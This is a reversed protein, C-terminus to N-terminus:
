ERCLQNIFYEAAKNAIIHKDEKNIFKKGTSEKYWKENDKYAMAINAVWSHRYGSDLKLETQLINIAKELETKM